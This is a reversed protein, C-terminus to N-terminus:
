YLFDESIMKIGPQSRNLDLSLFIERGRMRNAYLSFRLDLKRRRGNPHILLQGTILKLGRHVITPIETQRYMFLTRGPNVASVDDFHTISLNPFANPNLIEASIHIQEAIASSRNEIIIPIDWRKNETDFHIEDDLILITLDPSETAAFMRKIVEFPAKVFCDGARYYFHDDIASRIPDGTYKPLHIIVIGRTDRPNVLLLISESKTYSPVTAQPIFTDIQQVFKRVSGIPEIQTLIDLGSHDHKTTSVGYILIGGESNGFGSIAKSLTAKLDRNLQPSRPAKCELYLGEAEGQDILDEVKSYNVLSNFLSESGTQM